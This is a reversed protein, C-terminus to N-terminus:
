SVLKDLNNLVIQFPFTGVPLVMNGNAKKYPLRCIDCGGTSSCRIPCPHIFPPNMENGATDYIM